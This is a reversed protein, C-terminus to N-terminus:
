AADHERCALRQESADFNLRLAHTTALWHPVRPALLWEQVQPLGTTMLAAHVASRLSRPVPRVTLRYRYAGLNSGSYSEGYLVEMIPHITRPENPRPSGYDFFSLELNFRTCAGSLGTEIERYRLPYSLHQGIRLRRGPPELM